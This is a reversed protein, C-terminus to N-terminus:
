AEYVEGVEGFFGAWAFWFENRHTVTDLIVGALEGDVAEGLLTWTTGTQEDVFGGDGNSSFTLVEGNVTPDFAIGTGIAQSEALRGADLADKTGDGWFLVVPQSGVTDNVVGAAELDAFTYAKEIGDAQVGVVRSLAPFRPDPDEPFFPRIPADQSSYGVYPNAGYEISFGTDRSLSEGDPFSAQFDKFSVIATSIPTLTMGAFEGVIAEGTIQQWLSDTRDDWMVLDSKRLLGSVGFRTAEGDVVADFSLATNCLPCFTVVVPGGGFETNVIEHRTLISLPYFRALGDRQVLAGPEDPDLWEGAANPSEYVPDDIPPIADRPDPRQIGAALDSLDITSNTWDTQWTTVISAVFPDLGADVPNAAVDGTQEPTPAQSSSTTDDDSTEDAESTAPASSEAESSSCAAAVLGFAIVLAALRKNM